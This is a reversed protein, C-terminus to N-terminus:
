LIILDERAQGIGIFSIKAEKFFRSIYECYIDLDKPLSFGEIFIPKCRSLGEDDAPFNELLKGELAYGVCIKVPGADSLTDVKTLAIDTFGNICDAYGAAVGDFFGIKRPRLTTTGFEGGKDRILDAQYGTIETPFAGEGVRTPYAKFVGVVRTLLRPPIGAGLLLGAATPSSSTVRPYTGHDLDLLTGHAGEIVIKSTTELLKNVVEVADKIKDAFLEHSSKILEEYYETYFIDTVARDAKYLLDSVQTKSFAQGAVAQDLMERTLDFLNQNMLYARKEKLINDLQSILKDPNKLSTARVGIRQAKDMYTPGIGRKTTGVRWDGKLTEQLEDLFLQYQFTLHTKPSIILNDTSINKENLYQNEKTLSELNLAVGAGIINITNPNFIGAPILHLAFKGYENVVTHGANDGGQARIVATADTAFFDVIKGKGEDGWQGGVIAIVQSKEAM